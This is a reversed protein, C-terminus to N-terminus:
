TEAKVFHQRIIDHVGSMYRHKFETEPFVPATLLTLPDKVIDSVKGDLYESILMDKKFIALAGHELPNEKLGQKLKM